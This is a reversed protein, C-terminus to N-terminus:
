EEMFIISGIDILPSGKVEIIDIHHKTLYRKIKSGDRHTELDGNVYLHHNHYGCCGGIFGYDMGELIIDGETILLLDYGYEALEKALGKDATIGKKDPLLVLSCGTYGQKTHILQYGLSKIYKLINVDTYDLHHIWTNDLFKGNFPVSLPYRNGLKSEIINPTLRSILSRNTDLNKINDWSMSDIFCENNIVTLQIDAHHSISDYTKALKPVLIVDGVLNLEPLLGSNIETSVFIITKM